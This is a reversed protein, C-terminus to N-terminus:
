RESSEQSTWEYFRKKDNEELHEFGQRILRRVVDSMPIVLCKYSMWFLMNYTKTDLRLNIREPYQIISPRGIKKKKM